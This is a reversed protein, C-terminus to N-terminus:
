KVNWGFRAFDVCVLKDDLRDLRGYNNVQREDIDFYPVNYKDLERQYDRIEGALEWDYALDCNAKESVYGYAHRRFWNKACEFSFLDGVLPGLGLRACENQWKYANDRLSETKFIKLIRDGDDYVHCDEGFLCHMDGDNDFFQTFWVQDESTFNRM